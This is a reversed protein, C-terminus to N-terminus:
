HVKWAAGWPLGEGGLQFGAGLHHKKGTLWVVAGYRASSAGGVNKREAGVSLTVAGNARVRLSVAESRQPAPFPLRAAENIDKEVTLQAAQGVDIQVGARYQPGEEIDGLRRATLRSTQVGFRLGASLDIGVFADMAYAYNRRQTESYDLLSDPGRDPLVWPGCRAAGLAWRELRLTSGYLMAGGRGTYGIALREGVARRVEFGEIGGIGDAGGGAPWAGLEQVAWLSTTEERTLTLSAGKECVLAGFSRSRAGWPGDMLGRAAAGAKEADGGRLDDLRSFFRDAGSDGRAHGLAYYSDAGGASRYSIGKVFM